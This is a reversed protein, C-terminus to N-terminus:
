ETPPPVLVIPEGEEKTSDAEAPKATSSGYASSRNSGSPDPIRPYGPKITTEAPPATTVRPTAPVSPAREVAVPAAAPVVSRTYEWNSPSIPYGARGVNPDAPPPKGFPNWGFAGVTGVVVLGYMLNLLEDESATPDCVRLRLDVAGRTPALIPRPENPTIKQWGYICLAGSAARGVAYGFPGYSNQAFYPSVQMRVGPLFERMENHIRNMTPLNPTFRETPDYPGGVPGFVKAHIANQGENTTTTRLAIEQAVANSYLTELVAVVAPGGPPPVIFAQGPDVQRTASTNLAPQNVRSSCSAVALALLLVVGKVM